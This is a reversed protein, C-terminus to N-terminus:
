ENRLGFERLLLDRAEGRSPAAQNIKRLLRAAAARDSGILSRAMGMLPGYAPDFEASLRLADILGPSAAEILATGRPDGPLSAGAELFRNRAAWYADLRAGLADHEAGRALLENSDPQIDKTVALLLSWPAATLARVNRRADFTVFPYDDTNRPGEGAFASLAHPGGLYQGLLDIPAEFGLPRVVSGIAPDRLRAALAETDLHGGDRTGILALMPTRISYHNLWASGDPYVDLFGRVIARLSPLDLQYLPLWQCFIGGPALRRKVAGFHEVTYLAGSGDLAPHFLDAIIVDHQSTDAAVYRRADAVTVRPASAPPPNVFWPLLEVVERSLEVGRVSVHPMQSGGVVTAGTGIGLFLAQHPATHLLLPLMAQRYDSRVSSTGGMRFHGNVELYRTGAADDVVSATAMPGERVALLAGGPPVRTLSPAPNLWLVLASIAPAASWPLASRGPPLLLLYGLAVALLATWAGLAPILFQAAVLPAVCAGLSNVGVASGVSGRQDSVRQALLGFLAGMATAPVLFLAVAVALEGFIEASAVTEVLRRAYPVLVATAICAFSTAALLGRLNGDQADRGSRQWLLGGVATGLLYAALLGAFTYVTDEMVQAALRVVIVEFSLGLLGTAFLTITLRLDRIREPRREEAAAKGAASGLVLAGLACFANVGALCLLTGSFGLAPILLFTSALTGALAGATNAGYVGATVRAEGRADRMMRELAALTGGMAMAAPLLVLTPLALSGAWLLAPSPETGLLPSLARGASPLLWVSILGWVAIVAELTAYVRWPSRSRRIPRDLAFAGLALGGFFGAIVGLVAMMETGLALSLQRTWVIEYGLGAFGSATVIPLLLAQARSAGQRTHASTVQDQVARAFRGASAIATSNPESQM